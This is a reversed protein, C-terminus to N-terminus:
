YMQFFAADKLDLYNGYLKDKDKDILILEDINNKTILSYAYAKGVYGLGVIVVKKM